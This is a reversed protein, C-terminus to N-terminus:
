PPDVEQVGGRKDAVQNFGADIGLVAPRYGVAPKQFRAQAQIPVIDDM